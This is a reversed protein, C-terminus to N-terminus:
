KECRIDHQQLSSAIENLKEMLAENTVKVLQKTDTRKRKNLSELGSFDFLLPQSSSRTLVPPKLSINPKLVPKNSNDHGTQPFLCPETNLINKTPSTEENSAM